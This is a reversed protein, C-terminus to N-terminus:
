GSALALLINGFYLPNRLYRYPGDAVLRSTHLRMDVMVEPNLLREGPASSGCQRASSRLLPLSRTISGTPRRGYRAAPCGGVLAAGPTQHDVSYSFVRHRIDRRFDSRFKFEFDSAALM